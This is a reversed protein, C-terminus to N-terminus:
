WIILMSIILFLICLYRMLIIINAPFLWTLSGIFYILIIALSVASASWIVRGANNKASSM